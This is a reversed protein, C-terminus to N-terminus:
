TMSATVARISSTVFVGKDTAVPSLSILVQFETGNKHMAWLDVNVDLARANPNGFFSRVNKQHYNRYREPMLMELKMGVMEDRTYGFMKEAQTNVLFIDSDPTTVIMADPASDFLCSFMQENARLETIDRGIIYIQQGGKIPTANWQTWRYDGSQNRLRIEFESQVAGGQAKELIKLVKRTDESHVWEVWSKGLLDERHVGLSSFWSDNAECVEFNRGLIALMDVSMAFFRQREQENRKREAQDSLWSRVAKGLRRASTPRASAAKSLGSVCLRELESPVDSNFQSPPEVQDSIVAALTAEVSESAFPPRGTLVEYLIASLGYIDAPKGVKELEGAAQEPSMFSPTGLRQGELTSLTSRSRVGLEVADLDDVEEDLCKALGWDLVTVEGFEGLMVNDSKLDRHIIDKSHAYAITNCIAVFAELLRLFDSFRSENQARDRHYEEIKKTLTTGNLLPMSYCSHKGHDILQYVPIIGPHSLQGTIRAERIFRQQISTVAAIDKRIKKVAIIRNLKREYARWIKGIGGSEYIDIIEFPLISTPHAEASTTPSANEPEHVPARNEHGGTMRFTGSFQKQLPHLHGKLTSELLRACRRCNELHFDLERMEQQPLLNSIWQKLRTEDPHLHEEESSVTKANAM